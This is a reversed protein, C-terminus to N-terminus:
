KWFKPFFDLAKKLGPLLETGEDRCWVGGHSSNGRRIEIEFEFRRRNIIGSFFGIFAEVLSLM